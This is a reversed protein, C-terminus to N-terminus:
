ISILTFPFSFPIAFYLNEQTFNFQTINYKSSAGRSPNTEYIFDSFKQASLGVALAFTILSILAGLTSQVADYGNVTLHAQEAHVDLKNFTQLIKRGCRM